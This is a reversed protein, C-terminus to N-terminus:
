QWSFKVGRFIGAIRYYMSMIVNYMYLNGAVAWRKKMRGETGGERGGEREGETRGWPHVTDHIHDHCMLALAQCGITTCTKRLKPKM